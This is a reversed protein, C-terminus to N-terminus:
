KSLARFSDFFRTVDPQQETGKPGAYTLQFHRDSDIFHRQRLTLSPTDYVVDLGKFGGASFQHQDRITGNVAKVAGDRAAALLADRDTKQQWGPPLDAYAVIYDSSGEQSTITTVTSGNKLPQHQITPNGPMMVAFGADKARFERWQEAAFTSSGVLFLVFVALAASRWM